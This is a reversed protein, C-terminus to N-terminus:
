GSSLKPEAGGHPTVRPRIRITFARDITHDIFVAEGRELNRILAEFVNGKIETRGIQIREPVRSVANDRAASIDKTTALSHVIMLDLQSLLRSDIASPQQSAFLLSLGSDRGRKVYEILYHKAATYGTSPCMVHAEDIILWAQEPVDISVERRLKELENEIVHKDRVKELELKLRKEMQKIRHVKGMVDFVKKTIIGVIL